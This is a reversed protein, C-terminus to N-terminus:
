GERDRPPIAAVDARSEVEPANPGGRLCLIGRGNETGHWGADVGPPLRDRTNPGCPFLAIGDHVLWHSAQAWLTDPPAVARAVLTNCPAQTAPATFDVCLVSVNSLRLEAVARNLFACKRASRELLLFEFEARAIALVLGPLGAGTGVDVVRPGVLLPALHLADDIHRERVANIEGRGILNFKANWRLLLTEFQRLQDQVRIDASM